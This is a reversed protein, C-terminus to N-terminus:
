NLSLICPSCQSRFALSSSTDPNRPIYPALSYRANMTSLFIGLSPPSTCQVAVVLKGTAALTDIMIQLTDHEPRTHIIVDADVMLVHDPPNESELYELITLLKL